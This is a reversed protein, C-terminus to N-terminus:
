GRSKPARCIGLPNQLRMHEIDLKGKGGKSKAVSKSDNQKEVILERMDFCVTENPFGLKMFVM